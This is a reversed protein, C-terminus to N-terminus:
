GSPGERPFKPPNKGRGGALLARFHSVTAVIHPKKWGARAYHLSLSHTTEGRGAAHADRFMDVAIRAKIHAQTGARYITKQMKRHRRNNREVANSTAPLLKEELFALTNELNSSFLKSLTKGVWQFRQVRHGPM